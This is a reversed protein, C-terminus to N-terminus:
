SCILGAQRPDAIRGKASVCWDHRNQRQKDEWTRSNQCALGVPALRKFPFLFGSVDGASHSHPFRAKPSKWPRHAVTPFEIDLRVVWFQSVFTKGRADVARCKWLARGDRM